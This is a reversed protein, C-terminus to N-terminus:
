TLVMSKRSEMWERCGPVLQFWSSGHCNGYVAGLSFGDSCHTFQATLELALTDLEPTKGLQSGLPNAPQM